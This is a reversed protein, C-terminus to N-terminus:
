RSALAMIRGFVETTDWNEAIGPWSLVEEMVADQRQGEKLADSYPIHSFTVMSYLPVWRKPSHQHMAKEIKKRLIFRPDAVLDRMEIFNRLALEAIADGNPKREETFARFMAVRDHWLSDALRDFVTCDEFGANMGQGYFPVIAHAADGVLLVRDSIHWPRCRVICLSSTPNHIFDHELTPMLEVADPFVEKFFATVKAPTDLTSFSRDGEFPFFLTCTFSGDLNPLAILMYTGRPWIHLANKEMRFGGGPAAPINLEKYGHELYAQSYDFRDTAQMRARVASFAGDTGYLRDTGHTQVTGKQEDRVTISPADLDVAECRQNFHITAGHREALTMLRRNIEARSVSYICQGENGYPQFETRGDVHHIMRGHMPISIELIDKDIGVGALGRLGRESMALNISRGAPIATTRMDPRREFIDVQVGRKALYIALLSGVPGAGVVISHEKNM